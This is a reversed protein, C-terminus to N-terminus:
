TRDSTDRELKSRATRYEVAAEKRQSGADERALAAELRDIRARIRETAHRARKLMDRHGRQEDGPRPARAQSLQWERVDAIRAREAALQNREDAILDREDAVRDREAARRAREEFYGLLRAVSAGDPAVAQPKRNGETM